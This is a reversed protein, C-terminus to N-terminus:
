GLPLATIEIRRVNAEGFQCRDISGDWPWRKACTSRGAELATRRSGDKDRMPPGLRRRASENCGSFGVPRQIDIVAEICCRVQRM